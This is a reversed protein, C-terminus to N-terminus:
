SKRRLNKIRYILKRHWPLNEFRKKDNGEIMDIIAQTDPHVTPNPGYWMKPKLSLPGYKTDVQIFPTTPTTAFVAMDLEDINDYGGRDNTQLYHWRKNVPYIDILGGLRLQYGNNLERVQLHHKEAFALVKAKNETFRRKRAESNAM